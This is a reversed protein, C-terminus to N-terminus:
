STVVQVDSGFVAELAPRFHDAIWNRRFLKDVRIVIPPGQDIEAGGFWSAFNADGIKASLQTGSEGWNPAVPLRV